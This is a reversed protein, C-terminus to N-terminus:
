WIGPDRVHLLTWGSDNTDYITAKGADILREFEDVDGAECAAFVPSTNPVVYIPTFAFTWQGYVSHLRTHFISFGPLGIWAAPLFQRRMDVNESSHHGREEPNYRSYTTQVWGIGYWRTVMDVKPRRKAPNLRKCRDVTSTISSGSGSESTDGGEQDNHIVVRMDANVMSTLISAQQELISTHQRQV